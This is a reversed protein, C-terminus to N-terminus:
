AILRRSIPAGLNPWDEVVRLASFQECKM